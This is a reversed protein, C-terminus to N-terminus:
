KGGALELVLRTWYEIGYGIAEDNFNYKPHHLGHSDGNGLFIYSGPVREAFLSFDESGMTVPVDEDVAVVGPVNGAARISTRTSDPHNKTVPYTTRYDLVIETGTSISVGRCIDEMKGRIKENLEGNLTRVTGALSVSSPIVNYTDGGVIKTVSLVASALPDVNRSVLTQLGVLLHGAAIVPDASHHPQAAHGGRGNVVIDFDAVGAMMIGTRTAFAGVPLGPMNHMGYVQEIRYRELLKDDLMAEAGGGDEEAPQFIAVATGKFNRNTALAKMAGLLMATHGDHGCAHMMGQHGSAYNLGTDEIIPLADMDARLGITPGDGNNGRVVAVIGSVGIGREVVDCGFTSLTDYVFDSTKELDFGLEPVTHLHRRWQVAEDVITTM